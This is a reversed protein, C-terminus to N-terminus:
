AGEMLESILTNAILWHREPIRLCGEQTIELHGLRLALSARGALGQLASKGFLEEFSGLSLGECTRLRVMITDNLIDQLNEDEEEYFPSATFDWTVYKNLRLKNSRRKKGDWSVAGPGLGLYKDGEWYSSNHIARHGSLAFNSIEYHQLGRHRTSSCLIDWMEEINEESTEEIKGLSLMATLRTGPEYSLMYASLHPPALALVRRLREDWSKVTQAPLGYILDLSVELGSKMLLELANLAQQATHRRGIIRLEHDDLTQIGMSVRGVGVDKLADVLLPTVDEPNVEVTAEQCKEPKLHRILSSLLGVPLISPTGGGIYLTTFEESIEDRRAKYEEIVKGVFAQHTEMRPTSYFDCYLCKSHCYPIHVYLGAM